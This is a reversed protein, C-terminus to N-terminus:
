EKSEMVNHVEREMEYFLAQLISNDSEVLERGDSIMYIYGISLNYPMAYNITLMDQSIINWICNLVELLSIGRKINM